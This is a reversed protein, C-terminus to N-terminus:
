TTAPTMPPTSSVHSATSIEVTRPSGLDFPQLPPLHTSNYDHDHDEKSTHLHLDYEHGV